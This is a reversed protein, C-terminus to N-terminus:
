KKSIIGKEDLVLYFEASNEDHSLTTEEIEIGKM